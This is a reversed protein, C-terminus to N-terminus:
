RAAGVGQSQRAAGAAERGAIRGGVIAETINGGLLYIHGFFSGLEGAAFLGPIPAGRVDLVRQREDHVPGGQTNSVVPWVQIAYFPPVAIAIM